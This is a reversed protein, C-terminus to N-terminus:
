FMNTWVNSIDGLCFCNPFYVFIIWAAYITDVQGGIDLGSNLDSGWSMIARGRYTLLGFLVFSHM